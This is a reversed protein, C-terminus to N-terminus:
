LTKGYINVIGSLLNGTSAVIQVANMITQGSHSWSHSTRSYMAGATDFHVPHGWAKTKEAKNFDAIEITASLGGDTANNGVGINYDLCIAVGTDTTAPDLSGVSWGSYGTTFYSTGNSSIRLYINAGDVVPKISSAEVKIRHYSELDILTVSTNSALSFQGLHAWEGVPVGGVFVKSAYVNGAYLNGTVAADSNVNLTTTQLVAASLTNVVNVTGTPFVTRTPNAYITNAGGVVIRLNDTTPVDLRITGASNLMVNAVVIQSM